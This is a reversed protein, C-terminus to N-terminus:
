SRYTRPVSGRGDRRRLDVVASRSSRESSNQEISAKSINMIIGISTLTVVMSSGGASILPLANGTFPLLGVLVAMNMLAELSIWTTLGFAILSGLQDPANKAIVLGRWILLCFMLVLFFGGLIGTEEAVVAFISDTPALPLGTFKTDAQGIGVGFWGGKVVAELSRQIHYSSELPNNFGTLYASMRLRGTPYIFVLPLGGVLALAMIIMIIKWDCGALFLLIGGLLLVTVAASLDPQLMILMFTVGLIVGLPILALQLSNLTDQRSSLWFSLYIVIVAKALESPQISGGILMRTVETGRQENAILVAILLLLTGGGVLVLIKRYHHYDIFSAIAAFVLGILVWLVQRGFIYTPGEGMLISFDWSASYVMLLGFVLLVIVILLLPVDFPLKISRSKGSKTAKTVYTGEGM